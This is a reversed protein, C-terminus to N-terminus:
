YPIIRELYPEWPNRECGYGDRYMPFVESPVLIRLGEAGAFTGEAISCPATTHELILRELNECHQFLAGPLSEVSQPLRLEEMAAGDLAGSRFGVVPKGDVRSPVTLVARATGSDTLGSIVVGGGAVAEYTFADADGASEMIEAASPPMEPLETDLPEFCGLYTLLDQALLATRVEAGASNLHFNSDYFWGSDLIYHNPDSIAPCDFTQNCLDFFSMAHGGAMASRNVPSFSLLVQAGKQEAANCYDNVEKAFAPSIKVTDLAVPTSTDYGLPLINGPRNFILDCRDNSSAAAYVGQAIPPLGSNEIALREQLFAIYNGAMAAQRSKDLKTLLHSAGEACKWFATAGFYDSMTESTPEVALVVIDGERLTDLSLDLMASTGVAAYLGFPCVTYDFGKQALLEELHAGDLGFAVNSGGVIVLKRGDATELREHMRKLVAYYSDQYFSPLMVGRLLLATPILLILLIAATLKIIHQRM